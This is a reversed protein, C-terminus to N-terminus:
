GILFVFILKHNLSRANHDLEIINKISLSWSCWSSIIFIMHTWKRVFQLHAQVLWVCHVRSIAFRLFMFFSDLTLSFVSITQSSIKKIEFILIMNISICHFNHSRIHMNRVHKFYITGKLFLWKGNFTRSQVLSIAFIKNYFEDISNTIKNWSNSRRIWFWIPQSDFVLLGHPLLM